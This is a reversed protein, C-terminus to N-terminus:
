RMKRLKTQFQPLQTLETQTDKLMVVDQYGLANSMAMAFPDHLLSFLRLHYKTFRNKGEAMISIVGLQQSDIELFLALWSSTSINALNNNLLRTVENTESDNVIIVSRHEMLDQKIQARAADSLPIRDLEYDQYRTSHAIFKMASLGTEVLSLEMRLIPFFRELYQRCQDLAKKIDLTGCLRLTAQRFFENQDVRM